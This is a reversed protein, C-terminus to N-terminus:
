SGAIRYKGGMWQDCRVVFQPMELIMQGLDEDRTVVTGRRRAAVSPFFVESMGREGKWPGKVINIVVRSCCGNKGAGGKGGYM